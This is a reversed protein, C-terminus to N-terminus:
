AVINPDPPFIIDADTTIKGDPHVIHHADEWIDSYGEAPVKTVYAILHEPTGPFPPRHVLTFIGESTKWVM